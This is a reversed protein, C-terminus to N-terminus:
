STAAATSESEDSRVAVREAMDSAPALRASTLSVICARDVVRIAEVAM